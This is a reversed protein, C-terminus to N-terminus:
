LAVGVGAAILAWILATHWKPSSCAWILLLGISVGFATDRLANLIESM